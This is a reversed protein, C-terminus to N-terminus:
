HSSAYVLARATANYAGWYRRAKADHFVYRPERAPVPVVGSGQSAAGRRARARSFRVGVPRAPAHVVTANGLFAAWWSYTSETVVLTTARAMYVFDAAVSRGKAMEAGAVFPTVVTAGAREVLDKVVGKKTPDCSSV